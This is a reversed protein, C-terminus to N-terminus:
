DSKKEAYNKSLRRIEDAMAQPDTGHRFAALFHGRPDLLYTLASHSILYDSKRAKESADAAIVKAYFVGYNQAALAVQAPSGTLGILREHFQAVYQDLVKANDRDPDISIFIPQVKAGDKGLADMAQAITHLDTPCVDPCYTYGFFVLLFRGAFDRESVTRGTHDVLSFEGRAQRDVVLPPPAASRTSSPSLFIAGVGLAVTLVAVVIRLKTM